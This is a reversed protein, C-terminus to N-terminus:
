PAGPSVAIGMESMGSNGISRYLVGSVIIVDDLPGSRIQIQKSRRKCAAGLLCANQFNVLIEHGVDSLHPRNINLSQAIASSDSVM